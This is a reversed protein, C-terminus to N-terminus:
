FVLDLMNLPFYVCAFSTKKKKTSFYKLAATTLAFGLLHEHEWRNWEVTM